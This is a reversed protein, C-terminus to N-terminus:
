ELIVKEVGVENGNRFEVIYMGKALGTLDFQVENKESTVEKVKLGMSDYLRVISNKATKILIFDTAPNPMVKLGSTNYVSLSVTPKEVLRINDLTMSSAETGPQFTLTMSSYVIGATFEYSYHSSGTNISITEDLLPTWPDESQQFAVRCPRNDSGASADFSLEYISGEELRNMQETSFSQLFQIDWAVPDSSLTIGSIECAGNVLNMSAAVGMSENVYLYWNSLSCDDFDGNEIINEPDAISGPVCPMFAPPQDAGMFNMDVPREENDIDNLGPINMGILSTDTLSSGSLHLDGTEM